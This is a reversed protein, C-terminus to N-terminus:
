SKFAWNEKEGQKQRKGGGRPRGKGALQSRELKRRSPDGRDQLTEERHSKSDQSCQHMERSMSTDGHKGSANKERNGIKWKQKCEGQRQSFAKKWQRIGQILKHQSFFFFWQRNFSNHNKYPGALSRIVKGGGAEVEFLTIAKNKENRNLERRKRRQVYCMVNSTGWWIRKQSTRTFHDASEFCWPAELIQNPAGLERHSLM